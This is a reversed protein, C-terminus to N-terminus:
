KAADGGLLKSLRKVIDPDAAALGLQVAKTVEDASVPAWDLVSRKASERTQPDDAMKAFADRLVAMTEESVGPPAYFAQGVNFNLELLDYMKSEASGRTMLDRMHPVNKLLPNRPGISVLFQLKDGDIWDQRISFGSYYSGRGDLEGREMALNIDGGSNYGLIPKMRTGLVSNIFEPVFYGASTAGTSGVTIETKSLDDLSKVKSPKLVAISYDRAAVSGLWLFKSADYGLTRFLPDTITGATAEAIVTGDKPAVQMMYAAAAAGGAAPRNQLIVTPNGPLHKSLHRQIVQGYLHYSGGPGTPVVVTITKGAFSPSQARVPMVGAILVTAATCAAFGVYVYGAGAWM